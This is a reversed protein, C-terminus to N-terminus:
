GNNSPIYDDKVLSQLSSHTLASTVIMDDSNLLVCSDARLVEKVYSKLATIFQAEGEAFHAIFLTSDESVGYDRLRKTSGKSGIEELMVDLSTPGYEAKFVRVKTPAYGFLGTFIYLLVKVGIHVSSIVGIVGQV